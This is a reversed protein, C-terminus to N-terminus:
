PLVEEYTLVRRGARQIIEKLGEADLSGIPEFLVCVIHPREGQPIDAAAAFIGGLTVVPFQEVRSLLLLGGAAQKVVEPALKPDLEPEPAVFPHALAYRTHGRQCITVDMREPAGSAIPIASQENPM